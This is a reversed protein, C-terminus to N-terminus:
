TAALCVLCTVYVDTPPIYEYDSYESKYPELSIMKHFNFREWGCFSVKSGSFSFAHAVGAKDRSIAKLITRPSPM